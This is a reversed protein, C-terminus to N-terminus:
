SARCSGTWVLAGHFWGSCSQGRPFDEVGRNSRNDRDSGYRFYLAGARAAIAAITRVAGRGPPDYRARWVNAASAVDFARVENSGGVVAAREENVLLFAAKSVKHEVRKLTKGKETDLLILEERDALLLTSSDVFALNTIGRDAGKYRWLTKGNEIDIATVGFPGREDIEGDRLRTFQGGTRVYLRTGDLYMEPTLGADKAEWAIEGKTRSIARVRGRGSVYLFQEDFVADAETLALGEENVRFKERLLQKGTSADLATVGDYFLYLREDLFLPPHYNNLTYEVSDDEDDETWRSPMMEIDSEVKYNWLEKGTGLKFAYVVPERRLGEHDKKKIDRALVVALVESRMELAMQMVSGKVRDTRWVAEGTFLDVAELSTKGGRELTLLTLDTGPIPAVDTEALNANKRRWLIDGTEGDLAYLSKDTGVVLVGLETAQYFRVRGDLKTNWGPNVPRALLTLCAM